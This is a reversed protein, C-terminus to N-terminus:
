LKWCYQQLHPLPGSRALKGADSMIQIAPHLQWGAGVKGREFTLTLDAGHCQDTLLPWAPRLLRSGGPGPPM